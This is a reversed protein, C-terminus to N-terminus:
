LLYAPPMNPPPAIHHLLAQAERMKLVPRAAKMGILDVQNFVEPFLAGAEATGADEPPRLSELSVPGLLLSECAVDEALVIEHRDFLLHVYTVRDIPQQTVGPLGVFARAPLLVQEEGFMLEANVSQTLLRHQPSVLLPTENEVAGVEFRIPAMAYRGGITRQGVWRLPQAGRDLTLVFDGARLDEIARCGSPVAIQTGAVFCVYSYESSADQDTTYFGPSQGNNFNDFYWDELDVGPSWVIQVPEGGADTGDFVIAHGDQGEYSIADSRIVTLEIPDSGGGMGTWSLIYTDGVSFVEPSTDGETSEILLNKTATPPYDFTSTNSGSTNSNVNDGTSAGFENDLAYITYPM